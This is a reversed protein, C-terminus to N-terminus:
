ASYSRWDEIEKVFQAQQDHDRFARSPIVIANGTVGVIVVNRRTNTVEKIRSWPITAKRDGMENTIGEPSTTLTREELKYRVLFWTPMFFFAAATWALAILIDRVTLSRSFDGNALMSFLGFAVSYTVVTVLFRPSSKLGRFFSRLIDARTLSYRITM